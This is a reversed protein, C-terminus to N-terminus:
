FNPLERNQSLVARELERSVQLKKLNTYKLRLSEKGKRELKYYEEDYDEDLLNVRLRGKIWGILHTQDIVKVIRGSYTPVLFKRRDEGNFRTPCPSIDVEEYANTM